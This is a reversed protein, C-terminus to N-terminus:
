SAHRTIDAASPTTGMSSACLTTHASLDTRRKGHPRRHGTAHLTAERVHQGGHLDEMITSTSAPLSTYQHLHLGRDAKKKERWKGRGARGRVGVHDLQPREFFWGKQSPLWATLRGGGGM